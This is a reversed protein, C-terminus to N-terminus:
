YIGWYKEADYAGDAKWYDNFATFLICSDGVISKISSVASEQNEKSPVALNNSEGQSPWGSETVFVNKQVGVSDCASWVRQIQELVWKGSDAAVVNGDFFAHANVAVYDSLSCLGPNNITAIFTDVSVIPGSYNLGGLVSRATSLYGAIQDVTAEGNNVLENGISITYVVDWGDGHAQVAEYITNLGSEINAVDYIGLFVKQGPALAALVNPVQDCDVGYIRIVDYDTLSSLDSKVEDATKCGGVKYPSYVIGKSGGSSGGSSGTSTAAAASSTSSVAVGSSSAAVASSVSDVAVVSSVADAVASTSAVVAAAVDAAPTTAEATTTPISNGDGDVVVTVTVIDRKHLNHHHIPSATAMFTSFAMTAALALKSNFIM